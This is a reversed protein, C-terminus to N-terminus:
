SHSLLESVHAEVGMALGDVNYGGELLSVIRGGCTSDALDMVIRTLKKFGEDTISFCGLLDDKRSDFGASILIFDPQFRDAASLLKEEFARVMQDDTAGCDFHVNINYGLGPGAGERGPDGTGPYAHWNHTSFFLVTPDEWFANETGNGHHYDWDVILIKKFGFQQQAYRAAIAVNGYFCFGEDEGTNNAHHGPPRIACFANRVQGEAVAKVATLSGSVALAAVEGTTPINSVGEVHDTTHFKRIHPLADVSPLLIDVEQILGSDSMRKAILKLREPSEAPGIWKGLSDSFVNRSNVHLLYRDDYLYGTGSPKSPPLTVSLGPWIALAATAGSISELFERRNKRKSLMPYEGKYPNLARGVIM